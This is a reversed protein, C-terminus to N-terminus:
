GFLFWSNSFLIFCRISFVMLQSSDSSTGEQDERCRGQGGGDTGEEHVPQDLPSSFLNNFHAVPAEGKAQNLQGVIEVSDFKLVRGGKGNISIKLFAGEDDQSGDVFDFHDKFPSTTM